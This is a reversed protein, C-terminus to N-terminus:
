VTQLCLQAPSAGCALFSGYVQEARALLGGPEIQPELRRLRVDLPELAQSARLSLARLGEGPLECLREERGPCSLRGCIGSGLLERVESELNASELCLSDFRGRQVALFREPQM